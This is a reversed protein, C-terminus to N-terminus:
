KVEVVPEAAKPQNGFNSLLGDQLSTQMAAKDSESRSVKVRMEVVFTKVDGESNIFAKNINGKDDCMAKILSAGGVKHNDLEAGDELMDPAFSNFSLQQSYAVDGNEDEYPLYFSLTIQSSPSNGNSAASKKSDQSELRDSYKAVRSQLMPSLSDRVADTYAVELESSTKLVTLSNAIALQEAASIAM